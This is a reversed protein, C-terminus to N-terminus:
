EIPIIPPVRPETDSFDDVVVLVKWETSWDHIIADFEKDTLKYSMTLWRKDVDHRAQIYIAHQGLAFRAM